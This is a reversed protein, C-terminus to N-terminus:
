VLTQIFLGEIDLALDLFRDMTSAGFSQRVRWVPIDPM